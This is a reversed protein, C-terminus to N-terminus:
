KEANKISNLLRAAGDRGLESNSSTTADLEPSKLMDIAEDLRDAQKRAAWCARCVWAHLTAGIKEARSTDESRAIARIRDAEECRLTLVYAIAKLLRIVKKAGQWVM